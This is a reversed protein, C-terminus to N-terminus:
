IIVLAIAIIFMLFCAVSIFVKRGNGEKSKNFEKYWKINKKSLERNIYFNNMESGKM